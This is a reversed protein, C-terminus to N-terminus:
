NNIKLLSDWAFYNPTLQQQNMRWTRGPIKSTGIAIKQEGFKTKVHELAQQLKENKEIQASDALLDHTYDAKTELATLIVGCKKFSIDQQFLEHMRQMLARNMALASDTPVAFSIHISKNYFPQKTDFPSSQAFAILCGCLSQNDRLRKVANQLYDSMAECLEELATIRQGFSKSSVIQKKLQTDHELRICSHGQLEMVTRQMNVSFLRGLHQPNSHILDLANLIGMHQLKQTHQKGIGWINSIEVQALYANRQAQQMHVFDFVGHFNAQKKALHNALKAETKSRGIGVSVPLGIWKQIRQRMDQALVTFDSHPYHSLNLFCEDISYIEQDEPSAYTALIEHFRRSMEAYLVYNSSLVQINHAAILRQIKFVPTAMKIGLAKAEESRAVVCGDNNSLVVVPQDRLKPNFVRECSVYCNNVDILAFISPKSAFSM